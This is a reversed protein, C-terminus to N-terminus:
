TVRPHHRTQLSVKGDVSASLFQPCKEGARRAQVGFTQVVPVRGLKGGADIAVARQAGPVLGSLQVERLCPLVARLRRLFDECSFLLARVHLRARLM